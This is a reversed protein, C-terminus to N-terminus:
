IDHKDMPRGSAVQSAAYATARAALEDADGAVAAQVEAETREAAGRRRRLENQAAIMQAVDDLENEAELQASRAPTWGLVDAGSRPHLM